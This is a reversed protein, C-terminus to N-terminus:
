GPLCSGEWGDSCTIGDTNTNGVGSKGPPVAVVVTTWTDFSVRTATGIREPTGDGTIDIEVADGNRVYTTQGGGKPAGQPSRVSLSAYEGSVEVTWANATAWWSGTIPLVPVGAPTMTLRGDLREDLRDKIRETGNEALAKLKDKAVSRTQDLVAKVPGEPIAVEESTVTDTLAVRLSSRAHAQVATDDAASRDAAEAAIAKAAAGNQMAIVTQATTSWRDLGATVAQKREMYSLNTAPALAQTAAQTGEGVVPELESQLTAREQELNGPAIGPPIRNAQRLAQAALHAPVPRDTSFVKQALADILQDVPLSAVTAMRVSLPHYSTQQARPETPTTRDITPYEPATQVTFTMEQAPPDGTIEAPEPRRHDMGQELLQEISVKAGSVLRNVQNTLAQQISRSASTETELEDLVAGVYATRAAVLARQARNHYQDPAAILATKRDAVAEHLAASPPTGTGLQTRDATTTIERLEARLSALDEYIWGRVAAPPRVSVTAPQTDVTGTIARAAVGELGGRDALLKETVVMSANPATVGSPPAGPQNLDAIGRSPAGPLTTSKAFLGIGVAYREIYKTQTTNRQAGDVWTRNVTRTTTVHKGVTDLRQWPAAASPATADGDSVATVSQSEDTEVLTWNGSPPPRESHVTEVSTKVRNTEVRARLEHADEIITELDRGQDELLSTFARDAAVGVQLETTRSQPTDITAQQGPDANPGPLAAAALGNWKGPLLEDAAVKTTAKMLGEEAEPDATGFVQRQIDAMGGAAAVEIHKHNLVDEIPAGGYQAYGRVWAMPYLRGTLEAGLGKTAVPGANLEQEFTEVRDHMSLVPTPVTATVATTTNSVPRGDETVVVTIGAIRITATGTGASEITTREIALQATRQDTVSSMDLKATADGVSVTHGNLRTATKQYALLEIYSRFPRDDDLVRGFGDDAPDTVPAAAATAGADQTADRVVTEATAVARDTVVATDREVTGSPEPQITVIATASVLLLVGILAFPIRARTDEGFRM